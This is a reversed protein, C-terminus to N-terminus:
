DALENFKQPIDKNMVRDLVLYPRGLLVVSIDAAERLQQRFIGVFQEKQTTFWCWAQLYAERIEGPTQVLKLAQPLSEYIQQVNDIAPKSFDILPSIARGDRNVSRGAAFFDSAKHNSAMQLVRSLDIQALLEKLREFINGQHFLYDSKLTQQSPDM